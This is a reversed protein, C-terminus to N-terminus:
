SGSQWLLGVQQWEKSNNIRKYLFTRSMGYYNCTIIAHQLDVTFLPVSIPNTIILWTQNRKVKAKSIKRHDFKNIIPQRIQNEMSHRDAASFIVNLNKSQEFARDIFWTILNLDCTDEWECQSESYVYRLPLLRIRKIQDNVIFSNAVEYICQEMSIQQCKASSAAM